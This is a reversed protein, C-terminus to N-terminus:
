ANQINQSTPVSGTSWRHLYSTLFCCTSFSQSPFGYKLIPTKIDKHYSGENILKMVKAAFAFSPVIWKM